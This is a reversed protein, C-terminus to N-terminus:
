VTSSIQPQINITRLQQQQEEDQNQQLLNTLKIRYHKQFKILISAILFFLFSFFLSTVFKLQNPKNWQWNWQIISTENRSRYCM